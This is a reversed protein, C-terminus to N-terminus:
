EGEGVISGASDIWMGSATHYIQGTNHSMTIQSWWVNTDKDSNDSARLIPAQGQVYIGPSSSWSRPRAVWKFMLGANTWYLAAGM